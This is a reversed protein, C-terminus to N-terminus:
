PSDDGAWMAYLSDESSSSNLAVYTKGSGSTLQNDEIEWGGISGKTAMVTGRFYANGTDIDLYFNSNTPMGDDDVVMEGDENMFSPTISTGNVTFLNTGGALIGYEPDIMIKGGVLEGKDNTKNSQLVFRSNSLWAGSGDVKFQTVSGDADNNEIVLNNGVILKGALLQANVGGLKDSTESSSNFYGIAVDSTKWGDKTMAIMGNVIRLQYDPKSTNTVSIGAADIVVSQDQAGIITNKASDFNGDMFASVNSAQNVTKGIVYKSADFDRGSSYSKKIMSELTKFGNEKKYRNSFTLSLSSEKTFDVGVGIVNPKIVGESALNLYINKGLEFENKFRTFEDLFLFNTSDISFEYTPTALEALAEVGYDFLNRAVSYEKYENTSVSLSANSKTDDPNALMFSLQTGIMEEIGDTIVTEIDTSTDSVVGTFILTGNEYSKGDIVATNLYVSMVISTDVVEATGRVVTARPRLLTSPSEHYQFVVGDVETSIQVVANIETVPCRHAYVRLIGDLCEGSFFGDDYEKDMFVVASDGAKIDSLQIDIYFLPDAKLEHKENVSWNGLLDESFGIRYKSFGSFMTYADVDRKNITGDAIFDAALLQTKDTLEFGDTYLHKYVLSEDEADIEGDGNVDGRMRGAPIVFKVDAPADGFTIDGGSFGYMTKTINGSEDKVDVRTIQSGSIYVKGDLSSSVGDVSADVDSAVFTEEVIDGEIM